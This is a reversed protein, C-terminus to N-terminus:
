STVREVPAREVWQVAYRTLEAATKLKLKRKINSKHTEVTKVSLHLKGAIDRTTCAHGVLELVELERDSLWQVNPRGNARSRSHIIGRMIQSAVTNSVCVEGRAVSRIAQLVTEPSEHKMLYGEAGARLAREAYLNEDHMSLLLVHVQPHASRIAKTLEIGNVGNLTIDLVVVDPKQVALENLVIDADGAEGCVRLDPESDILKRLGGRFIPHDDVLFVRHTSDYGRDIPEESTNPTLNQM